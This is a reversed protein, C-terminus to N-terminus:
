HAPKPTPHLTADLLAGIGALSKGDGALAQLAALFQGAVAAQAPDAAMTQNTIYLRTAGTSSLMQKSNGDIVSQAAGNCDLLRLDHPLANLSGFDWLTDFLGMSRQLQLVCGSEGSQQHIAFVSVGDIIAHENWNGSINVLYLNSLANVGFTIKGDLAADEDWAIRPKGDATLSQLLQDVRGKFHPNVISIKVDAPFGSFSLAEYTIYPQKENIRAVAHEINRQLALAQSYWTIGYGAAAVAIFVLMAVAFVSRMRGGM